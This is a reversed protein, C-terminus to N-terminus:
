LYTTFLYTSYRLYCLFGFWAIIWSLTFGIFVLTLGFYGKQKIVKPLRIINQDTHHAHFIGFGFVLIIIGFLIPNLSIPIILLSLATGVIGLGILIPWLVFNRM